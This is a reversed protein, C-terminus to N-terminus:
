YKLNKFLIRIESIDNLRTIISQRDSFDVGSLDEELFFELLSKLQEESFGDLLLNLKEREGTELYVYAIRFYVFSPDDAVEKLKELMVLAESYKEHIINLTALRDNLFISDPDQELAKQFIGGAQEFDEKQFFIEGEMPLLIDADKLRKKIEALFEEANDIKGVKIFITVKKMLFDPNESDFKGWEDLARIAESKEDLIMYADVLSSYILSDDPKQELCEKFIQIAEVVQGSLSLCHAKLNLVSIDSDNISLAFDLADIAKEFQSTISYLKGLNLWADFSYPDFDLIKNTYFIAKEFNGKMESAYALDGIADLNDTEYELSKELYLIAEDFYDAEIYVSGLESLILAEPQDEDRLVRGTLEFALEYFDLQLLCEIKLLYLDFDYGSFNLNMFKLAEEYQADYVMLRAKRLKLASSDPHIALGSGIIEKASDIDDVSDYYDFLVEFEDADLYIRKGSYLMDEYKDILGPIDMDEFDPM